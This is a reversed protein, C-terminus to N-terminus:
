HNRQGGRSREILEGRPIGLSGPSVSVRIIHRVTNESGSFALFTEYHWDGGNDESPVLVYWLYEFVYMNQISVINMTCTHNNMPLSSTLTQVFSIIFRILHLNLKARNREDIMHMLPALDRM